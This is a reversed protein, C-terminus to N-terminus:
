MMGSERDVGNYLTERNVNWRQIIRILTDNTGTPSMVLERSRSGGHRQRIQKREHRERILCSM